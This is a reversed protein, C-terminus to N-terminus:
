KKGTGRQENGGIKHSNRERATEEKLLFKGGFEKRFLKPKDDKKVKRVKKKQRFNLKQRYRSLFFYFSNKSKVAKKPSGKAKNEITKKHSARQWEAKRRSPGISVM